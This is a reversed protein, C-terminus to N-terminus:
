SNLNSNGEDFNEIPRHNLWKSGDINKPIKAKLPIDPKDDVAIHCELAPSPLSQHPSKAKPTTGKRSGKTLVPSYVHPKISPAPTPVKSRPATNTSHPTATKKSTPSVPTKSPSLLPVPGTPLVKVGGVPSRADGRAPKTPQSKTSSAKTSSVQSPAKASAAKSSPAKSSPANSPPYNSLLGTNFEGRSGPGVAGDAVVGGRRELKRKTPNFPQTYGYQDREPLDGASGTISPGSSSSSSSSSPFIVDSLEPPEIKPLDPM